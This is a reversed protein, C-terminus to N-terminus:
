EATAPQSAAVFKACIEDSQQQVQVSSCVCIKLYIELEFLNFLLHIRPILNVMALDFDDLFDFDGDVLAFFDVGEHLFDFDFDFDLALEELTTEEFTEFFDAERLDEAAEDEAAEDEAAEDEVLDILDETAVLPEEEPM